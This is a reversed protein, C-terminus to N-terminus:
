KRGSKETTSRTGPQVSSDFKVIEIVRVYGSVIGHHGTGGSGSLNHVIDFHVFDLVHLAVTITLSFTKDTSSAFGVATEVFGSTTVIVAIGARKIAITLIRVGILIAICTGFCQV